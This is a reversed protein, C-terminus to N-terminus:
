LEAAAGKSNPFAEKPFDGCSKKKVVGTKVNLTFSEATTKILITENNIFFACLGRMYGNQGMLASQPASFERITRGFRDFVACGVPLLEGGRRMIGFSIDPMFVYRDSFSCRGPRIVCPSRLEMNQKEGGFFAYRVTFGDQVALTRGSEIVSVPPSAAKEEASSGTLTAAFVALMLIYLFNAAFNRKAGSM